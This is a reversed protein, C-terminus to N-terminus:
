FVCVSHVAKRLASAGELACKESLTISLARRWSPELASAVFPVSGDACTEGASIKAKRAALKNLAAARNAAIRSAVEKDHPASVSVTDIGVKPYTADKDQVDAVCTTADTKAYKLKPEGFFSSIRKQMSAVCSESVAPV